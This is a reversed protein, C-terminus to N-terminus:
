KEDLACGAVRQWGQHLCCSQCTFSLILITCHFTGRELIGSDSEANRLHNGRHLWGACGQGVLLALDALPSYAIGRRPAGESSPTRDSEEFPESAIPADPTRQSGPDETGDTSTGCNWCTDFQDDIPEDCHSCKWMEVAEGIVHHRRRGSVVM